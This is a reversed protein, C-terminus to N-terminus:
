ALKRTHVVTGAGFAAVGNWIAHWILPDFSWAVYGLAARLCAAAVPVFLSLGLYVL